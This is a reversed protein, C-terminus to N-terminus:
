YKWFQRTANINIHNSINEFTYADLDGMICIVEIGRKKVDVLKPYVANIYTSGITDCNFNYYVLNSNTRWFAKQNIGPVDNWLGHHALIILHSSETITDCTESIIRYQDNLQECHHPTLNMNELRKDVKDGVTHCQYTHGVFMYQLTDTTQASIDITNVIVFVFLISLTHKM